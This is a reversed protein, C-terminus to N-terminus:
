TTTTTLDSAFVLGDVSNKLRNLTDNSTMPIINLETLYKEILSDCSKFCFIANLDNLLTSKRKENSTFNDCSFGTYGLTHPNDGKVNDSKGM